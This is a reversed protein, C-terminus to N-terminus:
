KSITGDTCYVTYSATGLDWIAGRSIADWEAKAGQFTISTLSSCNLFAGWGISTLGNPIRISTLSSCNYFAYQDISTVGNPVAIDTALEDNIYLNHAYCLPNSESNSFEIGCWAAVDAIYVATLNSCDYFASDGISTVSNGITVSTLSSCNYFASYGIGIVGNGITVSTLSSCDYFAFYEISTVSDPIEVSMLNSCGTFACAGISAVSNGMTISTLSSCGEFASYGIGVVSNPIRVSTLSGCSYFAYDAIYQIGETMRYAGAVANADAKILWDGILLVGDEWNRDDNYYGTNYFANKGINTVSDPISISTLSSCGEFTSYGISTVSDPIRISMLSSCGEFASSDISTVTEPVVVKQLTTKNAFASGSIRKVPVGGIYAPIWVTTDTRNYASVIIELSGSGMFENYTFDAPKNEEMWYAYLTINDNLTAIASYPTSLTKNVFWGGFTYGERTPEALVITQGYKCAQKEISNGGNTVYTLAYTVRDYYYDVVLSGDPLVSATQTPPSIFYGYKKVAPTIQANATGKLTLSEELTYADDNANQQYHNVVYTVDTRGTWSATLTIDKALTWVGSDYKVGNNYWGKFTYGVRTPTPLTVNTGFKVAQTDTSVSGGNADFTITYATAEWNATYGKSQRGSLIRM